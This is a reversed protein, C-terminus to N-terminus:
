HGTSTVSVAPGPTAPVPSAALLSLALAATALLNLSGLVLALVYLSRRADRRRVGLIGIVVAVMALPVAVFVDIVFLLSLGGSVVAAGPLWATAVAQTDRGQPRPIEYELTAVVEEVSGLGVLIANVEASTPAHGLMALNQDIHESMSTLVEHREVRDVGELSRALQDLYAEAAAPRTGKPTRRQPADM